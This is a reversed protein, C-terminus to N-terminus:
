DFDNVQISIYEVKENMSDGFYRYNPSGLSIPSMYGVSQYQRPIWGHEFVEVVFWVVILAVVVDVTYHKHTALIGFLIFVQCLGLVIWRVVSKFLSGMADNRDLARGILLVASFSLLTHGSFILDGCSKGSFSLNTLVDRLLMIADSEIEAASCHNAPGPLITVTITFIRFFYSITLVRLFSNISRAQHVPTQFSSLILGLVPIANTMLESGKSIASDESLHPLFHHSVDFLPKGPVHMWMSVVNKVIIMAVAVVVLREAHVFISLTNSSLKRVLTHRSIAATVALLGTTGVSWASYHNDSIELGLDVLYTWLLIYIGLITAAACMWVSTALWKPHASENFLTVFLTPNQKSRTSEGMSKQKSKFILEKRVKINM